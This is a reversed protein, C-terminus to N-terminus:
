EVHEVGIELLAAKKKRMYAVTRKTVRNKVPVRIAITRADDKPKRTKESSFYAQVYLWYARAKEADYLILFVPMVQKM